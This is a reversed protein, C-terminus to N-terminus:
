GVGVFTNRFSMLMHKFMEVDIVSAVTMLIIDVQLFLVSQLYSQNGTERYQGNM